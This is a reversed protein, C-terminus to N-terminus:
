GRPPATTPSTFIPSDSPYVTGIMSGDSGCVVDTGGSTAYDGKEPIRIYDDGDTGRVTGGPDATLAVHGDCTAQDGGGGAHAGIQTLGFIGFGTAATIAVVSAILRKRISSM